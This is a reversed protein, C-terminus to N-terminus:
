LSQPESRESTEVNQEGASFKHTDASIIERNIGWDMDM